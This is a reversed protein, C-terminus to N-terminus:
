SAANLTGFLEYEHELVCSTLNIQPIVSAKQRASCESRLGEAGSQKWVDYLQDIHPGCLTHIDDALARM